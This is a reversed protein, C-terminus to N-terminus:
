VLQTSPNFTVNELVIVSTTSNGFTEGVAVDFGNILWDNGSADVEFTQAAASYSGKIYYTTDTVMQGAVPVANNFVARGVGSLPTVPNDVDLRDNVSFDTIVDPGEDDNWSYVSGENAVTNNWAGGANLDTTNQFAIDNGGGLTILDAGTGGSILDDGFGGILTDLGSGGDIIDDGNDGLISDAGENGDIFDDGAGGDITDNGSGGVISDIGDEGFILDDENNGLISDDGTGGFVTDDGFGSDITDNGAGGDVFDDADGSNITDNGSGGFVDDSGSFSSIRDAGGGGFITDDGADSDIVDDGDGNISAGNEEAADGFILLDSIGNNAFDITDSGANGRITSLVMEVTRRAGLLDGSDNTILDEGNGGNLESQIVRSDTRFRLTDDGAGGRLSSDAFTGELFLADTGSGGQTVSNTAGGAGTAVLNIVDNGSGGRVSSNQLAGLGGLPTVNIVDNGAEGQVLGDVFTTFFTINDAGAGANISYDLLLGTGASQEFELIDDGALALVTNGAPSNNVQPLYDALETGILSGNNPTFTGM